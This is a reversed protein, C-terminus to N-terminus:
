KIIAFKGVKEGLEFADVHYIYVGYAVALNDRTLLNWEATGDLINSDHEITAVLEGSVTFIRITCRAPLHTFHISRPGRGSTFPNKEEWTAAAVYPNPVVKIKDLEEKALSEEVKQAFTTFEFIDSSRFLKALVITLTDGSAPRRALSDYAASVSWTSVLSDNLNPELFIIQDTQILFGSKRVGFIGPGGTPDTDLFAFDIQRSESTNFVKFNVPISPAFTSGNRYEVSTDAGVSDFFVVEYDSPKQVGIDFRLKWQKFVYQYIGLNNWGSLEPNVGFLKENLIILRFGDTIPQENTDELATSRDILTDLNAPDTINVLTFNKTKFTDPATTTSGQLVTDEFTVQYSNNDKVLNPDVVVYDIRGTTTGQVLEINSVVPGVYGAVPAEASVIAISSGISTIKGTVNDVNIKLNSEAPTIGLPTYGQDFARVAYYYKQGFRITTDVYTHVIGNDGGLDFQVGNFAVPHFGKIGDKLDFTAIPDLWPAPNGFADTIIRADEFAPDTARYIKYGEFDMAPAGEIGALFRDVSQEAINDWYLTVQPKWEGNVLRAGAVATVTPELPAQAFQYDEDYALQAADRKRL